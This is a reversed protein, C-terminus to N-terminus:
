YIFCGRYSIDFDGVAHARELKRKGQQSLSVARQAPSAALAPRAISLLMLIAGAFYRWGDNAFYDARVGDSIKVTLSLYLGALTSYCRAM